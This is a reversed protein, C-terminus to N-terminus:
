QGNLNSKVLEQEAQKFLLKKWEYQIISHKKILFCPGNGVARQIIIEFSVGFIM